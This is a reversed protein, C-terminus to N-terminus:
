AMKSIYLSCNRFEGSKCFLGAGRLRELGSGDGVVVGLRRFDTCFLVLSMDCCISDVPPVGIVSPADTLPASKVKVVLLLASDVVLTKPSCSAVVETRGSEMVVSSGAMSTMATSTSGTTLVSGTVVTEETEEMAEEIATVETVEAGEVGVVEAVVM